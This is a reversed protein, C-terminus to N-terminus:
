SDASTASGNQDEEARARHRRVRAIADRRRRTYEIGLLGLGTGALCTWLWWGNGAEDLRGRLLLLVVTAVGWLVTGVVVTRVGDTDVPKTLTAAAPTTGAPTAAPDQSTGAAESVAV